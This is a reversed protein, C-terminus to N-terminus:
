VTLRRARAQIPWRDEAQGNRVVIAEAHLAVTPCIHKPVGYLCDGVRFAKAQSTEIVLHEESQMVPTADPLNLFKVRPQPNEPAVAKHGLDLCLRNTGPKSIVRTLLVSAIQFPLDPLMEAYGFDWFVYTGPSCEVDPRKAHIPFTPTGGAVVRPVPLQQDMLLSRFKDAIAFAVNCEQTRVTLDTTHIHGDYVHLGGPKLGPLATLLQYLQLAPQGPAIGTRQMGCDIDLLVEVEIGAAAFTTSMSRLASEDDAITSFRTNPFSRALQILRNVNPGVPQYALLVDPANNVACLEAEAITAAKFRTIGLELHMAVIPGLKHTKVHPRVRNTGGAIAIMQRINERVRDPYILLAPSAVSTPADLEFWAPPM